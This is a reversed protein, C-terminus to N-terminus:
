PTQAEVTRLPLPKESESTDIFASLFTPIREELWYEAQWPSKGTVFGVHGGKESVELLTTESLQDHSPLIDPTMFPDDKAHIILTAVRISKLYHKSSARHYYDEANLFGHLPATIQDDFDHMTKLQHLPPPAFPPATRAFKKALKTCLLKLFYRQYARSLGKEMKRAANSLDFPVSVTAAAKLPNHNGTEGLWKLLINGGLSFGIAALPTNPEDQQLARVFEALDATDGGHYSRPLRNIDRGCCRFHVVVGRWGREEIANLMGIAYPSYASGELGHLLIVIPGHNGGAWTLDIFDGDSLTFQEHRLSPKKPYRRCFTPWLTQLHSNRLWWPPQFPNSPYNNAIKRIAM